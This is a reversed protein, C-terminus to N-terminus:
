PDAGRDRWGIAALAFTIPIDIHLDNGDKDFIDHPMIHLEIYLDGSPGGKDGAEGEGTIRLRLRNESGQPM